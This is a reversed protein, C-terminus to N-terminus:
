KQPAIIKDFMHEIQRELGKIRQTLLCHGAEVLVSVISSLVMMTIGFALLAGLWAM